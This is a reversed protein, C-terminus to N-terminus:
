VCDAYPTWTVSSDGTRMTHMRLAFEEAVGGGSTLLPVGGAVFALDRASKLVPWDPHETVDVGYADALRAHLGEGGFRVQGAAVAALDVLAPGLSTSDFDCLVVRGDPERLLNRPHADGHVLVQPHRQNLDRILPDLEQCWDVLFERDKAALGDADHLRRRAAAVPNWQPVGISPVPLAHWVRLVMGLDEVTVPDPHPPVWQWVTALLGDVEVPQDIGVALRIAPANVERFWEGLAAVKVVRDRMSKSRTIRVALGCSPLAYVANNAMHLLRADGADVDLHASLTSLAQQMVARSFQGSKSM